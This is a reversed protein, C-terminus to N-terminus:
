IDAAAILKEIELLILMRSTGEDEVTAIGTIFSSDFSTGLHPAPKHDQADLALVNSVADVVVGVTRHKLNLVIVVTSSDYEASGLALKLRLDIIPVVVGRLNIVGKICNPANPIQTPSEYSRIEQVYLIDVAYEEHGLRFTVFEQTTDSQGIASASM